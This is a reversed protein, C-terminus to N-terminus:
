LSVGMFEGGNLMSIYDAFYLRVVSKNQQARPAHPTVRKGFTARYFSFDLTEPSNKPVRAADHKPSPAHDFVASRGHRYLRLDV